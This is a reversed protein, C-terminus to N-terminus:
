WSTMSINRMGFSAAATEADCREGDVISMTWAQELIARRSEEPPTPLEDLVRQLREPDAVTALWESYTDGDAADDVAAMLRDCEEGDLVGDAHAVLGCAVLKWQTTLSVAM